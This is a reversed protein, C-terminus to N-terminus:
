ATLGIRLLREMMFDSYFTAPDYRLLTDADRIFDHGSTISDYHNHWGRMRESPNWRAKRERFVKREGQAQSRVPYHRLIFNFPFVQRGEFAAQHGGSGTLHVRGASRHWTKVQAFHGPRTGFEFYPFADVYNDGEEFSDETPHHTLVTHDVANFGCERVSHLATRLSVGPWPSMRYEDVDHYVIWDSELADGVEEVRTLLDGWDYTGSPGSPPYQEVETVGRGVLGRAIEHSLDSSWNDIIYVEVGERNLNQISAALIDAENYVTM